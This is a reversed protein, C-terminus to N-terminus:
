PRPSAPQPPFNHPNFNFPYHARTEFGKASVSFHIGKIIGTICKGVVPDHIDSKADDVAIDTVKGTPDITWKVDLNGKMTPDPHAKQAQDYCARAEDRHAQVIVQIDKVARGPEAQHPGKAPGAEPMEASSAGGTTTSQLKTGQLDGADGLTITTTTPASPAPPPASATGADTVAAGGPSGPAPAQASSGGCAAALLALTPLAVFALAISLSRVTGM